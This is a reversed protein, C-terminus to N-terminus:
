KVASFASFAFLFGTFFVTIRTKTRSKKTTADEITGDV